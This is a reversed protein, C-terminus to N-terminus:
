AAGRVSDAAERNAAAVANWNRRRVVINHRPWEYKIANREADLAACRDHGVSEVTHSAIAEGWPQIRRHRRIRSKPDTTLGVYLLEGAWDYLRYLFHERGELDRLGRQRAPPNRASHLDYIAQRCEVCRCRGINYRNATGHDMNM